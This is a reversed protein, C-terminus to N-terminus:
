LEGVASRKGDLIEATVGLAMMVGNLSADRADRVPGEALAELGRKSFLSRESLSPSMLLERRTPRLPGDLWGVYDAVAASRHGASARQWLRWTFRILAAVPWPTGPRAGTRQWPIAALRPFHRVLVQCLARGYRRESIRLRRMVALAPEEAYPTRVELYHRDLALGAAALRGVRQDLLFHRAREAPPGSPTAELAAAVAEEPHSELERAAERALLRGLEEPRLIRNLSAFLRAPLSSPGPLAYRPHAFSGGLIADGAFGNWQSTVESRLGDLVDMGHFHIAAVQGDTLAVAHALVRGLGEPTWDAIRHPVGLVETVRRAYSLDTSRPQGFTIARAAQGHRVLLALVLRSDLGGSLLVGPMAGPPSGRETIEDLAALIEDAARDLPRRPAPSDAPRFRGRRVSDAEITYRAGPPLAEVERFLTRRGFLQGVSLLEAVGEPDFDSVPALLALPL